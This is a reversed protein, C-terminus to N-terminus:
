EYLPYKKCIAAVRTAIEERSNEFDTAALFILHAIERMDSEVLGRTTM